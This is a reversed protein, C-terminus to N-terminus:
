ISSREGEHRKQSTANARQTTALRKPTLTAAASCERRNRGRDPLPCSEGRPESQARILTNITYRQTQTANHERVPLGVHRYQSALDAPISKGREEVSGEQACVATFPKTHSPPSDKSSPCSSVCPPSIENDTPSALPPTRVIQTCALAVRSSAQPPCVHRRHTRAQAWRRRVHLGGRRSSSTGM